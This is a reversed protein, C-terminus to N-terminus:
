PVCQAQQLVLRADHGAQSLRARERRDYATEVAVYWGTVLLVSTVTPVRPGAAVDLYMAEATGYFTSSTWAFLALRGFKSAVPARLFAGGRFLMAVTLLGCLAVNVIRLHDYLASM